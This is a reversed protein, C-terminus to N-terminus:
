PSRTNARSFEPSTILALLMSKISADAALSQSQTSSILETEGSGVDRAFVFEALHAAYCSHAVSNGALKQTLEGINAFDLTVDGAFLSGSTDVPKGNDETRFRGIADFSELAFGPPNIIENHCNGCFGEGTHAVVRERNTQGPIPEPLPPIVGPPPSLHACLLRNNIDVGRHIPDPEILNANYALFGVRTLFGPRSGDLQVEELTSSTSALGYFSATADNVFAVNSTLIERFGLNRTFVYSFFNLDADLLAPILAENFTPFATPSKLISRYRDLGFLERHFNEIAFRAGDAELLESVLTRVSGEDDFKGAEVADLLADSPTTNLLLYSIKTALESGSLRGGQPSVETRYVFYPSQLIAEIFVRAGDAFADGSEYFGAGSAWLAEYKTQEDSTLARRFARRGVAAVFGAADGPASLQALQDPNSAVEEALAESGRQYDRSLTDTVYLARENNSFTGDPPDPIFTTSLGPRDALRLVDRVSNEWQPHTLRVVRFYEPKGDIRLGGPLITPQPGPVEGNSTSEGNGGLRATCGVWAWSLCLLLAPTTRRNRSM